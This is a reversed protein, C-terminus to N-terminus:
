TIGFKRHFVEVRIKKRGLLADKLGASPVSLHDIVGKVNKGTKRMAERIDIKAMLQKIADILNTTKSVHYQHRANTYGGFYFAQATELVALTLVVYAFIKMVIIIKTELFYIFYKM